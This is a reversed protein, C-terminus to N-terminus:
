LPMWYSRPCYSIPFHDTSLERKFKFLLYIIIQLIDVIRWELPTPPWFQTLIQEVYNNFSGKKWVYFFVWQTESPSMPMTPLINWVSLKEPVLDPIINNCIFKIQIERWFQYPLIQPEVVLHVEHLVNGSAFILQFNMFIKDFVKINQSPLGTRAILLEKLSEPQIKLKNKHGSVNEVLNMQHHLRLNKLVLKPPFNLIFNIHIERWFQYPSCFFKLSWWWIFRTSFTEPRLFISFIWSFKIVTTILYSLFFWTRVM